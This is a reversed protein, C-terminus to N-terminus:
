ETFWVAGSSDTTIALPQTCVTPVKFETIYRNSKAVGTGCFTTRKDDPYNDAPTGTTTTTPSTSRKGLSLGAVSVVSIIFIAMLAFAFLRKTNKKM